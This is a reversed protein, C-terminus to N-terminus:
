NEKSYLKKVFWSDDTFCKLNSILGKETLAQHVGPFYLDHGSLIFPPIDLSMINNLDKTIGEYSHNGDIYFMDVNIKQEQIYSVLETSTEQLQIVKTGFHKTVEEAMVQFKRKAEFVDTPPKTDNEFIYPDVSIFLKPQLTSCIYWMSSGTFSGIEVIISPDKLQKVALCMNILSPEFHRVVLSMSDNLIDFVIKPMQM